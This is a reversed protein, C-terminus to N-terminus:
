CVPLSTTARSVAFTARATPLDPRLVYAAASTTSSHLSILTAEALPIGAEVATLLASRRLAHAGPRRGLADALSLAVERTTLGPFLLPRYPPPLVPPCTPLPSFSTLLAFEIQDLSILIRDWSGAAETKSYPQEHWVPIAEPSAPVGPNHLWLGGVRTELIDAVRAARRWALLFVVRVRLPSTPCALALRYEQVCMTPRYALRHKGKITLLRHRFRRVAPDTFVDRGHALSVIPRILLAYRLVSTPEASRLRSSMWLIYALSPDGVEKLIAEFHIYLRDAFTSPGASQEKAWPASIASAIRVAADLETTLAAAASRIDSLAPMGPRPFDPLARPRARQAAPPAAGLGPFLM